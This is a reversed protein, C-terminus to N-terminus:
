NPLASIAFFAVVVVLGAPLFAVALFAAFFFYIKKRSRVSRRWPRGQRREENKPRARPDDRGGPAEDCVGGVRRSLPADRVVSIKGCCAAALLLAASRLLHPFAINLLSM